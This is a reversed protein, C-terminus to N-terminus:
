KVGRECARSSVLKTSICVGSGSINVFDEMFEHGLWAGYEGEIQVTAYKAVTAERNLEDDEYIAKLHMSIVAHDCHFRSEGTQYLLVQGKEQELSSNMM